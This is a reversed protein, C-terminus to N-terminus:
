IELRYRQIKTYLQSRTIGLLRAAESRNNRADQLAKVILGREVDKLKAGDMSIVPAAAATSPGTTRGLGFPLHELAIMGGDCLITARELANRLERVNGPWNYSLLAEYAERSIGAAKRGVIGGIEELFAEAMPRIDQRRDERFQGQAMAAELDRNTAAVIRVDAKLSRTGGLRQYEREQLVRLLKAQVAPTMEGVEDLFLVGGAAQEIRGARSATAGTFAGREHGFLESELLTEPLAACNLAAFPGTARPSGRHIFRAIVEKGTGSEGTLLVTTETQAVKAAQSLAGKWSRSEGIIRRYGLTSELQEKLVQVREELRNARERAEAARREEGALRQHSLALSVHDAVRRGVIVDEESYQNPTRSVILIWATGTDLHMPIGLFSRMGLQRCGSRAGCKEPQLDVDPILVYEPPTSADGPPRAPFHDPMEPIPEGSSAEVNLDRGDASVSALILRDHPLVPQVIESVRNFVGRVDLTQALAPLLSDIADLRRRRAVDLSWLREHELSLSLIDAIAKAAREHRGSFAGPQPSTFWVEGAFQKGSMLSSCLMSQVGKSLIKQDMRFEPNLTAHADDIRQTAGPCPRFQPSFDELRIVAEPDTEVTTGAVAYSRLLNPAELRCVGMIEFPLVEAAAEAVQAFVDKLELTESVIRAIRSLASPLPDADLVASSPLAVVRRSSPDKITESAGNGV